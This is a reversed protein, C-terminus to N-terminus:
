KTLDKYDIGVLRSLTSIFGEEEDTSGSSLLRHALLCMSSSALTNVQLVEWMFFM